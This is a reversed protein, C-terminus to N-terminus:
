KIIGNVYETVTRKGNEDYSIWTGNGNKLTGKEREKGNSDFSSIIEWRLGDPKKSESYKYVAEQELQGNDYFWQAKGSRCYNLYSCRYNLRGQINYTYYEGSGNSLIQNGNADFYDDPSIFTGNSYKNKGLLKGNPHYFEVLGNIKEASYNGKEKMVGSEYYMKYEGATTGNYYNFESKLKGNEFFWTNLGERKGNKYNGKFSLNGNSFYDIRYGTGNQLTREGNENFFDGDNVYKGDKYNEKGALKGNPHYLERVGVLKDDAYASKYRLKGNEFYEHVIGNLKGNEYIDTEKLKGNEFYFEWSGTRKGNEDYAGESKQKGGPYYFIAKGTPKNSVWDYEIKSELVGEKTIYEWPGFRNFALNSYLLMSNALTQRNSLNFQQKKISPLYIGSFSTWFAGGSNKYNLEMLIKEGKGTGGSAAPYKYNDEYESNIATLEGKDFDYSVAQKGNEWYSKWIGKMKFWGSYGELSISSSTPDFQGEMKKKGDPYYMVFTKMFLQDEQGITFEIEQFVSGDKYYVIRKGSNYDVTSAKKGDPYNSVWIGTRENKEYTGQSEIVNLSYYFKWTGTKLGNKFTGEASLVGNSYYYKWNGDERGDDYKGESTLTKQEYTKWLGTREGKKYDGEESVNGDYDYFNWRGKMKGEDYEGKSKIKGNDYYFKWLGTKYENEENGYKDYVVVINGEGYSYQVYETKKKQAISHNVFFLLAFFLIPRM